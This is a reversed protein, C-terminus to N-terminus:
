AIRLESVDGGTWWQQVLEGSALTALIWRAETNSIGAAVSAYDTATYELSVTATGDANYIRKLFVVTAASALVWADALDKDLTTVAIAPTNSNWWLHHGQKVCVYGGDLYVTFPPTAPDTTAPAGGGGGDASPDPDEGNSRGYLERLCDIIKNITGTDLDDSKAIKSPIVAM